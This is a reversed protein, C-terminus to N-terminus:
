VGPDLAARRHYHALETLRQDLASRFQVHERWKFALDMLEPVRLMVAFPGTPDTKRVAAFDAAAKKQADTMKDAPIPSMRVQAGINVSTGLALVLVGSAVRLRSSDRYRGIM